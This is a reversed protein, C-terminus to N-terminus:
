HGSLSRTLTKRVFQAVPVGKPITYLDGVTTPEWPTFSEDQIRRIGEALVDESAAFLRSRVGKWRQQESIDIRNLCIVEGGDLTETLRQLTIGAEDEGNLYEWFGMPQGRYERLDGHHFSLVGHDFAHLVAGTIFGFGFLVAVDASEAAETVVDRPLEYKWGDVVTPVCEVREVGDLLPIEDLPYARTEPVEGAVRRELGLLATVVTWERLEVARRFQESRTRGPSTNVIVREVTANTEEVARRLAARQWAAMSEEALLCVRLEDSV